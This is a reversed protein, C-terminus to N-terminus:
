KSISAASAAAPTRNRRGLHHAAWMTCISAFSLAASLIFAQIYDGQVDFMLGAIVPGLFIAAGRGMEVFGMVAGLTEAPFLDAAKASVILGSIGDTVGALAVYLALPWWSVGDGLWVVLLVAGAAISMGITYVSERGWRDTALGVLPRAILSVLGVAGLTNAATQPGYGALVFFTVLHVRIMQTGTSGAVRTLVLFWMAPQRVSSGLTPPRPRRRAAPPPPSVPSPTLLRSPTDPSTPPAPSTTPLRSPTDPATTPPPSPSTPPLRSPTDPSKSPSLPTPSPSTSLGPPTDPGTPPSLPFPTPLGPPTDPPASQSPSESSLRPPTPSAPAPPAAPARKQLIGNPIAILLAFIIGFVRYAGRWGLAATLIGALPAFVAQGIPNGTDALGLMRGRTAPFWPALTATMSFSSIATHGIGAFISYFLFMQWLDTAFSAALWGFLICLGALPFLVRAGWRDLLIGLLPAAIAGILGALAFVASTYAASRGFHDKLANFYVAESNKTGGEVTMNGLSLVFIVWGYHLRSLARATRRRRSAPPPAPSM